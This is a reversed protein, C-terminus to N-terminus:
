PREFVMFATLRDGFPEMIDAVKRLDPSATMRPDQLQRDEVPAVVLSGAPMTPLEGTAPFTRTRLLLDERGAVL